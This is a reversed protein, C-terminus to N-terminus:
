HVTLKGIAKELQAILRANERQAPGDKLAAYQTEFAAYLKPSSEVATVLAKTVNMLEAMNQQHVLLVEYIARLMDTASENM